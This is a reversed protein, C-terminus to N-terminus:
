MKSQCHLRKKIEIYSRLSVVDERINKPAQEIQDKVFRLFASVESNNLPVKALTEFLDGQNIVHLSEPGNKKFENKCIAIWRNVLEPTAESMQALIIEQITSKDFDSPFINKELMTTLDQLIQVQGAQARKLPDSCSFLLDGDPAIEKLLELIMATEEESHPRCKEYFAEITKENGEKIKAISAKLDFGKKIDELTEENPNVMEQLCNDIWADLNIKEGKSPSSDDDFTHGWLVQGESWQLGSMGMESIYTVVEGNGDLNLDCELREGIAKSYPSKDRVFSVISLLDSTYELRLYGITLPLYSIDNDKGKRYKKLFGKPVSNIM